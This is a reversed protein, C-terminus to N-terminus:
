GFIFHYFDSVRSPTGPSGTASSAVPRPASSSAAIRHVPPPPHMFPINVSSPPAQTYQKTMQSHTLPVSSPISVVDMMASSPGPIDELNPQSIPPNGAMSPDELLPFTLDGMLQGSANFSEDFGSQSTPPQSQTSPPPAARGGLQHSRAMHDELLHAERFVRNCVVCLFRHPFIFLLINIPSHQNTFFLSLKVFIIM